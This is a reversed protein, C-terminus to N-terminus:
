SEQHYATRGEVLLSPLRNNADHTYDKHLLTRTYVERRIFEEEVRKTIHPVEESWFLLFILKPTALLTRTYCLEHTYKSVASIKSRSNTPMSLLDVRMFPLKPTTLRDYIGPRM